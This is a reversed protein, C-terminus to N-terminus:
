DKAAFFPMNIPAFKKQAQISLCMALAIITILTKKM